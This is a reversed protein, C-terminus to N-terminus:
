MQFLWCLVFLVPAAWTALAMLPVEETDKIQPTQKKASANDGQLAKRGAASGGKKVLGLYERLDDLGIANLVDMDTCAVKGDAKVAFMSVVKGGQETNRDAIAMTGAQLFCDYKEAKELHKMALEKHNRKRRAANLLVRLYAEQCDDKSALKNM